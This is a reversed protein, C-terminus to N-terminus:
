PDPCARVKLGHMWYGEAGSDYEADELADILVRDNVQFDFEHPLQNDYLLRLREDGRRLVVAFLYNHYMRGDDDVMTDRGVEEGLDEIAWGDRTASDRETRTCGIPVTMLLGALVILRSNALRSGIM